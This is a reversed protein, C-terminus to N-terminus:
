AGLESVRQGVMRVITRRSVGYEDALASAPEQGEHYRRMIAERATQGLKFKPGMKTGSAIAAARGGQMREIITSREFDAFCALLSVMLKGMMDDRITGVGDITVAVQRAKMDEVTHLIDLGSRGLRDLATVILEDGATLKKSLRKFAPRDAAPVAGSIKESIVKEAGARILKKEQEKLDQGKTSVRAYGYRM